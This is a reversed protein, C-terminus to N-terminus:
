SCMVRLLIANSSPIDRTQGDTTGALIRGRTSALSGTRRPSAEEMALLGGHAAFERFAFVTPLGYRMTLLGISNWEAQSRM